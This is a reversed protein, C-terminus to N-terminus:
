GRSRSNQTPSVPISGTVEDTHVSIRRADAYRPTDNYAVSSRSRVPSSRGKRVRPVAEASPESIIIVGSGWNPLSCPM